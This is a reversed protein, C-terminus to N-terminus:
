KLTFNPQIAHTFHQGDLTVEVFLQRTEKSGEVGLVVLAESPPLVFEVRQDSKKVVGPAIIAEGNGGRIRVSVFPSEFVDSLIVAIAAGAKASTPSISQVTPLFYAITSAFEQSSNEGDLM